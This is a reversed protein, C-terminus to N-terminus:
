NNLDVNLASNKLTVSKELSIFLCITMLKCFYKTFVLRNSDYVKLTVFSYYASMSFVRNENLTQKTLLIRYAVTNTEDGHLKKSVRKCSSHRWM